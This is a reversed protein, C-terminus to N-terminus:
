LPLELLFEDDRHSGVWFDIDAVHKFGHRRYFRQAGFNESYVSLQIADCGRARAQGIAHQIMAAGVGRGTAEAACYLQGLVCPCSPHPQPREDFQDGFTVTCYGLLVGGDEALLVLAAADTIAAAYRDPSRYEDLFAALDHPAYLHGFADIFAQRAFAVITDVDEPFAPRLIM